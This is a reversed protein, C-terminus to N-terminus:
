ELTVHAVESYKNIYPKLDVEEDDKFLRVSLGHGILMTLPPHGQLRLESGPQNVQSSLIKGDRDKIETWSEEGFVLRLTTVKQSTTTKSTEPSAVPKAPEVPKIQQTQPVVQAAPPRSAPVSSQATVPSAATKPVASVASTARAEPAPLNSIVEMEAPLSLPTEIFTVEPQAQPSGAQMSGPSTRPPTSQWLGFIVIIVGLLVAAGSWILNQRRVTLMAPFPMEVSEPTLQQQVPKDLPLQELLPQADLHLIKAYSRVFGRLFTAGQLQQFNDSELAEIQRTAFKIQNAVDAVSLGLRERAERLIRGLSVQPTVPSGYSPEPRNTPQEEM